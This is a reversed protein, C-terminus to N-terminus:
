ILEQPLAPFFLNQSLSPVTQTGPQFPTLQAPRNQDLQCLGACMQSSPSEIPSIGEEPAPYRWTQPIHNDPDGHSWYSLPLPSPTPHSFPALRWAPPGPTSLLIFLSFEHVAEAYTGAEPDVLWSARLDRVGCWGYWCVGERRWDEGSRGPHYEHTYSSILWERGLNGETM